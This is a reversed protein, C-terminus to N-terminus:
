LRCRTHPARSPPPSAPRATRSSGRRIAAACPRAAPTRWARAPPPRRPGAARAWRPSATPTTARARGPTRARPPHRPTAHSQASTLTPDPPAIHHLPSNTSVHPASRTTTAATM